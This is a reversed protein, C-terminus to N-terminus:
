PVRGYVDIWFLNGEEGDFEIGDRADGWHVLEHLIVAGILPFQDGRANRMTLLRPPAGAEFATALATNIHIENPGFFEGGMLPDTSMPRFMLIPQNGWTLARQLTPRDVQAYKLFGNVIADIGSVKPLDDKVYSALKKFQNEDRHLMIM